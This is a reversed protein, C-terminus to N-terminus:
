LINFKDLKLLIECVNFYFMSECDVFLKNIDLM